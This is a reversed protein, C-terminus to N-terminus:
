FRELFPIPGTFHLDFDLLRIMESEMDILEKKTMTVNWETAILRVMRNYSPQVPEELKASM